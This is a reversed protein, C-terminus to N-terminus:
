LRDYASDKDNDWLEALVPDAKSTLALINERVEHEELDEELRSEIAHLLYQRVSMDRKAAALRIRRRIEQDVDVSIRPRKVSSSMEKAM